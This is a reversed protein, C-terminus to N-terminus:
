AVFRTRADIMHRPFRFYLWWFGFTFCVFALYAGGSGPSSTSLESVQQNLPLSLLDSDPCLEEMKMELEAGSWEVGSWGVVTLGSWNEGSAADM